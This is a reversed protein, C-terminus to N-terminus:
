SPLLWVALDHGVFIRGVYQRLQERAIAKVDPIDDFNTGDEDPASMRRFGSASVPISTRSRDVVEQVRTAADDRRIRGVTLYAGFSYLLDQDFADRPIDKALWEVRRIHALDRPADTRHEYSEIVQGVAITGHTKLPLVVLDGVGIRRVFSWQQGAYAAGQQRRFQPAHTEIFKTIEEQSRVDALGCPPFEVGVIIDEDLM